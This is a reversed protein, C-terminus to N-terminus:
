RFAHISTKFLNVGLYAIWIAVWAPLALIARLRPRARGVGLHVLGAYVIWLVVSWELKPDWLFVYGWALYGWIGGFVMSLSFLVFGWFVHSRIRADWADPAGPSGAVSLRVVAASFAASWLSYALFSLPVHLVYWVTVLLAFPYQPAPWRAISFSLLLLAPALLLIRFLRWEPSPARPSARDAFLATLGISLSLAAMTEPRQTLPVYGIALGRVALAAALMAVGAALVFRGAAPRFWGVILSAAYDVLALGLLPTERFAM